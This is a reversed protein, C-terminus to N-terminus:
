IVNLLAGPTPLSLRNKRTKVEIGTSFRRSAAVFTVTPVDGVVKHTYITQSFIFFLPTTKKITDNM